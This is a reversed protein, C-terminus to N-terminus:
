IRRGLREILGAAAMLTRMEEATFEGSMAGALQRIRAGHKHRLAERGAPTLSMVARRGDEPDAHRAVLGRKELAGLTVGMAQASILEVRALEGPTTAGAQDLRSLARIEPASLEDQLVPVQRLRRVYLGISAHLAAAVDGPDIRDTGSM